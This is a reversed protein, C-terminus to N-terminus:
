TMKMLAKRASSYNNLTFFGHLPKPVAANDGLKFDARASPTMSTADLILLATYDAEPSGRIASSLLVGDDERTWNPRPVFM